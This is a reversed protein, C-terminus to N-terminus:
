NGLSALITAKGSQWLLIVTEEKKTGATVGISAAYELLSKHSFKRLADVSAPCVKQEVEIWGKM